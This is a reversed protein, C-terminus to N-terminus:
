HYFYPFAFKLEMYVVGDAQASVGEFIQLPNGVARSNCVVGKGSIRNDSIPYRIDSIPFRFDSIPNDSIWFQGKVM